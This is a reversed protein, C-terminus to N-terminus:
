LMREGQNLQELGCCVRLLSTKGCGGPGLISVIEGEAISLNLDSFVTHDDLTLTANKLEFM